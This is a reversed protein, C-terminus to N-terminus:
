RSGRQQNLAEVCDRLVRLNEEPSLPRDLPPPPKWDPGYIRKMLESARHRVIAIVDLTRDKRRPALRVELAEIRSRLLTM